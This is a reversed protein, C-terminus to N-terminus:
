GRKRMLEDILNYDTYPTIIDEFPVFEYDDKDEPTTYAQQPTQAGGLLGLQM